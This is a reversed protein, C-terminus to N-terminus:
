LLHPLRYRGDSLRAAFAASREPLVVSCSGTLEEATGDGEARASFVAPLLLCILLLFAAARRIYKSHYVSKSNM